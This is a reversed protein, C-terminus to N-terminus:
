NGAFYANAAQNYLYITKAMLVSADSSASNNLIARAWFLAPISIMDEGNCTITNFEDLSQAAINSISVRYSGGVLVPELTTGNCAFTYDAINAGEALALYINIGTDTNLELAARQLTLGSPVIKKVHAFGALDSQSVAAIKDAQQLAIASVDANNDPLIAYGNKRKNHDNM